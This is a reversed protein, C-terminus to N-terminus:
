KAHPELIDQVACLVDPYVKDADAAESVDTGVYVTMCGAAKGSLIDRETDGIMYSEKLSINYKEAAKLIMGPKPKRCDCEIKYEIREGEFGRDPHHPCYYIADLYAGENGLLTELKDHMQKLEPLSVMGKAIVPQNTILIALYGSQNIKRVAEATGPILELQEIDTLLGVNVNLTGDRDLFIAKQMESLNKAKVMGQRVDEEVAILRDPTGMDKVYEPSDYAFLRGGAILPKLIDRDLDRKQLTAFENLIEKNLFHLGANVRNQYWHREDEKHLWQEVQGNEDVVIIGSDYPHSNPHTLLTAVAHHEKHYRYFRELDIDFIIDGNLLLFDEDPLMEKMLFLAGATGLPEEETIYEIHVGFSSGDSFYDKIVHGLHGLGIIIDTYDQRKLVEIQYELIPKSCIPI